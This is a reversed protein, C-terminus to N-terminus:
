RELRRQRASMWEQLSAGNPRRGAMEEENVGAERDVAMAGGRYRSSGIDVSFAEALRSAARDHAGDEEEDMIRRTEGAETETVALLKASQGGLLDLVQRRTVEPHFQLAYTQGLRYAQLCKGSFALPKAGSPLEFSDRHWLFKRYTGAPGLVPSSEPVHVAQWGIERGGDPRVAGGLARTVLQGGLCIGVVPVEADHVARLFEIEDSIFPFRYSEYAGMDGGLVLVGDFRSEQLRAFDAAPATVHRILWGQRELLPLLRGLHYERQHVITMLVGSARRIETM